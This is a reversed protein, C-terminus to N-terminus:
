FGVSPNNPKRRRPSVNVRFDMEVGRPKGGEDKQMPLVWSSKGCRNDDAGARDPQLYHPIGDKLGRSTFKPKLM